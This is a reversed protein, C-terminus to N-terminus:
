LEKCRAAIVLFRFDTDSNNYIGHSGGNRCVNVDGEGFPYEKGDLIMVGHGSIGIYWEEDITEGGHEHTGFASGPPLIDDHIFRIIGREAPGDIMNKFKWAGKGGHCPEANFIHPKNKFFQTASM